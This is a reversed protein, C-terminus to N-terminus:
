PLTEFMYFVVSSPLFSPSMREIKTRHAALIKNLNNKLNNKMDSALEKIITTLLENLNPLHLVSNSYIKDPM